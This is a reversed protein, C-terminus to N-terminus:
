RNHERLIMQIDTVHTIVHPAQMELVDGVTICTEEDRPTKIRMSKGWANPTQQVLEIIHQRNARFLALSTEVPRIAYGWNEAWEMQPKDWYWQLDFLGEENGLAAKICTKWIDDGDVVHHVNQRITWSDATRALGLDSETIGNLVAELRGPGDAYLALTADPNPTQESM